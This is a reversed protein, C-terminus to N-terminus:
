VSMNDVTPKFNLELTYGPLEIVVTYTVTIRMGNGLLEVRIDEPGAPIQLERIKKYITNRVEEPTKRNAYGFRAETKMADELEFNNIYPPIVKFGVYVIAALIALGIITKLKGEGRQSRRNM